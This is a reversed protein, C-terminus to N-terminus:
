KGYRLTSVAVARGDQLTIVLFRDFETDPLPPITGGGLKEVLPVLENSHRVFVSKSGPALKRAAAVLNEVDGGKVVEATLGLRDALPSATQQTRKAESAVIRSIGADGLMRALLHAREQGAESISVDLAM